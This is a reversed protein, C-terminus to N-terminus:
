GLRGGALAQQIDKVRHYASHGDLDNPWDAKRDKGSFWADPAERLAALLDEQVQRHWALIDEPSRDRWRMYVLHNGDTISLGREELPIHQGRASRAVDAKWHIIHALGDKVTWPEKTESRPLRREWDEATLNAVVHDLLEYERIAREIVEDRNHRM